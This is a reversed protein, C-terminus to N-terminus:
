LSDPTSIAPGQVSRDSFRADYVRVALSGDSLREDMAHDTAGNLHFTLFGM